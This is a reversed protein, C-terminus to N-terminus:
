KRIKASAAAYTITITQARLQTTGSGANTYVVQNGDAKITATEQGVYKTGNYEDCTIDIKAIPAKGDFTITNSGYVRIGKTATYFKPANTNTGKDFTIKTGDTLEITTIEQQNEFGLTNFDVTITETGATVASNTLTVTTGNIAVGENTGTTTGGTNGNNDGTGETVGNVSYVYANKQSTELTGKYNCLKGCVIVDDGVKIFNEDTVNKNGLGLARYVYFQNTTSGDDSIYFTTNGYSASTEKISVVKGKFYVDKDATANEALKKAEAIVAAINYPNALTGDGKLEANPDEVPTETPEVDKITGNHSVLQSGQTFEPTNGMYNTLQGYVIIEDGVKIATEDTFKAKGLGYGRYVILTDTGDSISYTANGYNTTDLEKIYHITGKVYYKADLGSGAAILAKAESVTLAEDIKQGATPTVPTEAIAEGEEILFNELEWTTSNEAPAYFYFAVYVSDHNVFEDPIAIYGSNYLTWDNTTSAKPTFALETWTAKDFDVTNGDYDKSIYIKHYKQWDTVKNEYRITNDFSIRVKGSTCNTCLAPSILYSEVEKNSKADAGDWKQYGTAQTYSSGASWAAVGKTDYMSFTSLSANKYPLKKGFSASGNNIDYPMPVDSCSTTVGITAALALLISFIKKM